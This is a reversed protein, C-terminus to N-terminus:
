GPSAYQRVYDIVHHVPFISDDIGNIDSWTDGPIGIKLSILINM